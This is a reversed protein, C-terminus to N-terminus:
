SGSTLGQEYEEKEKWSTFRRFVRASEEARMPPGKRKYFDRYLDRSLEWTAEFREAESKSHWYRYTEAQQETLDTVKRIIKDV